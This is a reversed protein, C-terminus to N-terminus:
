SRASALSDYRSVAAFIAKKAYLTLTIGRVAMFGSMALWLSHNGLSGLTLYYIPLFFVLTALVMSILMARTATAGIFVGDWIFCVANVVPAAITWGFFAMAVLIVDQKDTFLGLIQRGFLWYTLSALLSLGMGWVFLHWIARKLSVLDRAGFFKGVLSEAAYAFGDIGYSVVMWLQMLISNAALVSDGSAASKATFFSYSVILLLTRLFIDRNVSFFRRAESLELLRRRVIKGLYERYTRLFLFLALLVGLYNAIVSGLAVGATKMGLVRLFIIDLIIAISNVAIAVIMPYRANQVGLFWGQFAYIALVAPASWIRIRYYIEAQAKVEPTSTVLQFATWSILGQFAVLTVGGVIAVLLARALTLISESQDQKGFAQATIGTTGMRLFGFGWFLFNFIMAGVAVGGLYYTQELHGVLATDISSLLPISINSIISPIALRLIDKNVSDVKDAV